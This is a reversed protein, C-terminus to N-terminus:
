KCTSIILEVSFIINSINYDNLQDLFEEGKLTVSSENAPDCASAGPGYGSGIFGICVRLIEVTLKLIIRGNIDLEKL